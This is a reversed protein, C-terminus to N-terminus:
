CFSDSFLDRSWDCAQIDHDLVDSNSGLLGGEGVLVSDCNGTQAVSSRSSTPVQHLLTRKCTVGGRQQGECTSTSSSSSNNTWQRRLTKAAPTPPVDNDECNRAAVSADCKHMLRETSGLNLAGEPVRLCQQTSLSHRRKNSKWSRRKPTFRHSRRNSTTSLATVTNVKCLSSTMEAPHKSFGSKPLNRYLACSNHGDLQSGLEGLTSTFRLSSFSSARSRWFVALEANPTSQSSPVFDLDRTSPSIFSDKKICKNSETQTQKHPTSHPVTSMESSLVACSEADMGVTERPANVSTNAIMVSGSFLDASCNYADGESQEENEFSSSAEDNEQNCDYSCISRAKSKKVFVVPKTCLRDSVDHRDGGNSSAPINTVDLLLQSSSKASNSETSGNGGKSRIDSCSRSTERQKQVHLHTETKAWNDLDKECLFETLGESFALDDWALSSSLFTQTFQTRSFETLKSNLSLNKKPVSQSPSLWKKLIPTNVVTTEVSSYPCRSSSLSNYSLPPSLATEEKPQHTELCGRLTQRQVKNNDSWRSNENGSDQTSCGEEQEASSTILGLSQEWPPTPTLTCDQYQSRPLSQSLLTTNNFSSAPSHQPIVVLTSAPPRSTKSIDTSGQEYEEAKQLLIRYYSVVTCGTLEAAKPLIMQSAVFQVTDKGCSGNAFPGGTWLGGGGGTVKIGFTFHRGIFCDEVAKVLLTARSPAGVPGDVSGVLRKLGSAPIGFFPNLCTGFVTVGFISTDRAVRLSLRYRYDVQERLCSYGCKSCRCRTADQQEVDIRSFCGNCAPYFVCSDRLSLVAGDVLARTRLGSM